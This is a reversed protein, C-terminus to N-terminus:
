SRLTYPPTESLIILTEPVSLLSLFVRLSSRGVAERVARFLNLFGLFPPRQPAPLLLIHM